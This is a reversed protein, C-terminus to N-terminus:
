IFPLYEPKETNKQNKEPYIDTKKDPTGDEGERWARAARV